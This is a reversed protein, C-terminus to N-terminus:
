VQFRQKIVRYFFVPIDRAYRKTYKRPSYLLRSLWELYNQTMWAPGRKNVGAVTDFTGGCTLAMQVNLRDWNELLWREQHPMGLGIFVIDPKLFNIEQTIKITDPHQQSFNFFGHHTGVIQLSPFEKHYIEAARHASGPANGLFYWSKHSQGCIRAFEPMWDVLTCRAPLPCGLIKSALMVGMGDCYNIEAKNLFNKFWSYEHAINLGTIHVHTIIARNGSFLLETLKALLDELTM